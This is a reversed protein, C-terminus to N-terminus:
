RCTMFALTALAGALAFLAGFFIMAARNEGRRQMRALEAVEGARTAAVAEDATEPVVEVAEAVDVVLDVLEKVDAVRAAALQLNLTAERIRLYELGGVATIRRRLRESAFAARTVDAPAAELVLRDDFAPDGVLVDIVERREVQQAAYGEQPYVRLSLGPARVPVVVAVHGMAAIVTVPRGRWQGSTEEGAPHHPAIKGGLLEAARDLPSV